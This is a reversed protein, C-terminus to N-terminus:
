LLKQIQEHTLPPLVSYYAHTKARRLADSGIFHKTEDPRGDTATVIVRWTERKSTDKVALFATLPGYSYHAMTKYGRVAVIEALPVIFKRPEPFASGSALRSREGDTREEPTHPVSM